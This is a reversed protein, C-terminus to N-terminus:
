LTGLLATEGIRWDGYVAAEVQDNATAQMRRWAGPSQGLFKRFLKNFHAQDSFGCEAAIQCLSLDTTRLLASARQVRMRVVYAHPTESLSARFARCFHHPSLQALLAMDAIRIPNALNEEVYSELRRIQWGALGGRRAARATDANRANDLRLHAIWRELIADARRIREEAPTSADRLTTSAELILGFHLLTAPHLGSEDAM